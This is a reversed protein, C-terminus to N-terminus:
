VWIKDAKQFNTDELVDFAPQDTIPNAEYFWFLAALMKDEGLTLQSSAYELDNIESKVPGLSPFVSANPEEPFEQNANVNM